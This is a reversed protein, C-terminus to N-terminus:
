SGRVNATLSREVTWGRRLRQFLTDYPIRLRDAWDAITMTRDQFTLLRSRQTNRNQESQTAWRCNDPTYDGDVEKRDLSHHRSPKRGMDSLFSEFSERWRDCVRIGRGGYNKWSVHNPNTCRQTMSKWANYETTRHSEGHKIITEGCSRCMTSHGRKLEASVVDRRNGCSCECPTHTRGGTIFSPGIVTWRGIRNGTIFETM